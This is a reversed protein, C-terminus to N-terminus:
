ALSGLWPREAEFLRDTMARIQSLTLLAGTLPDLAVAAYVLSRDGDLAARVVLRQVNVQVNNLAACAPPLGGYKVPRLGIDDVLCAVEVCCDGALNSVLGDNPVNGYIVRRTGTTMSDIIYAGYEQSASLGERRSVEIFGDVNHDPSHAACIEYYDWRQPLNQKVLDPNKRFWPWYESAHHSSETHFYGTLAM